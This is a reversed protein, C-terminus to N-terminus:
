SNKNVDVHLQHQLYLLVGSDTLVSDFALCLSGPVTYIYIVLVHICYM